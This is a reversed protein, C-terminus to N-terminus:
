DHRVTVPGVLHLGVAGRQALSVRRSGRGGGEIPSARPPYWLNITTACRRRPCYAGLFPATTLLWATRARGHICDGFFKPQDHPAIRARVTVIDYRRTRGIWRTPGNPTPAVVM